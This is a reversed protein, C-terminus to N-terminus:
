KVGRGFAIPTKDKWVVRVGYHGILISEAIDDVVTINYKNRVVAVSLLKEERRDKGCTGAYKRWVNPSVVEFPIENEKCVEQLVGLLMALIKFTVIGNQQYQIDEMVILDPKWEKIVIDNVFKRIKTIRSIVDGSYKYLSYFALEGDDFISLGFKETAQDFAIIRSGKKPPVAKPNIFNISTDCCPCIFSARRFDALCTEILHGKPCEIKIRSQMNSYGSDDILKYGERNGIERFLQEHTLKAM